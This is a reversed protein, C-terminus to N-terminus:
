SKARGLLKNAKDMAAQWPERYTPLPPGNQWDVLEALADRLEAVKVLDGAVPDVLCPLGAAMRDARVRAEAAEREPTM